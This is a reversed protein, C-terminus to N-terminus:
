GGSSFLQYEAFIRASTFFGAIRDSLGAKEHEDTLWLSM